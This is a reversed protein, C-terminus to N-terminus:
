SDFYFLSKRRAPPQVPVARKQSHALRRSLLEEASPPADAAHQPADPGQWYESYMDHIDAGPLQLIPYMKASGDEGTYRWNGGAPPRRRSAATEQESSPSAGAGEAMATTRSRMPAREGRPQVPTLASWGLGTRRPSTGPVGFSAALATSSHAGISRSFLGADGPNPALSASWQRPSRMSLSTRSYSREIPTTSLPEDSSGPALSDSRTASRASGVSSGSRASQPPLGLLPPLVHIDRSRRSKRRTSSISSRVGLSTSMSAESGSGDIEAPESPTHIARPVDSRSLSSADSGRPPIRVSGEADADKDDRGTLLSSFVGSFSRASKEDDDGQAKARRLAQVASATAGTDPPPMARRDAESRAVHVSPEARHRGSPLLDLPSGSVPTRADLSSSEAGGLVLSKPPTNLELESPSLSQAAHRRARALNSPASPSTAASRVAQKLSTTDFAEQPFAASGPSRPREAARTHAVRTAARLSYTNLSQTVANRPMREKELSAGIRPQTPQSMRRPAESPPEVYQMFENMSGSQAEDALRCRESCFLPAGQQLTSPPARQRREKLLRAHIPLSSVAAAEWTSDDIDKGDDSAGETEILCDCVVCFAKDWVGDGDAGVAAAEEETESTLPDEDPVPRSKTKAPTSTSHGGKKKSM